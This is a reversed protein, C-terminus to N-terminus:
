IIDILILIYLIYYLSLFMRARFLEEFVHKLKKTSNGYRGCIQIMSLIRDNDNLKDLFDVHQTGIGRLNSSNGSTGGSVNGHGQTPRKTQNGRGQRPKKTKKRTKPSSGASRSRRDKRNQNRLKPSDSDMLDMLDMDKGGPHFEEDSDFDCITKKRNRSRNKSNNNNRKAKSKPGKKMFDMITDQENDSASIYNERSRNRSQRPDIKKTILKANIRRKDFGINRNVFIEDHGFGPSPKRTRTIDFATVISYIM